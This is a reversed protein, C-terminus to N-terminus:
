RPTSRRRRATWLATFAVAALLLSGPEPIQEVGAFSGGGGSSAPQYSTVRFSRDFSDRTVDIGLAPDVFVQSAPLNSADLFVLAGLNVLSYLYDINGFDPFTDADPGDSGSWDFLGVYYAIGQGVIPAPPAKNSCTDIGAPLPAFVCSYISEPTIFQATISSAISPYMTQLSAVIGDFQSTQASPVIFNLQISTLGSLTQFYNQFGTLAEDKPPRPGTVGYPDYHVTVVPPGSSEAPPLYAGLGISLPAPLRIDNLGLELRPDGGIMLGANAAASAVVWMCAALTRAVSSQTLVNM